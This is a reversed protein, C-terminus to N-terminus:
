VENIIESVRGPNPLGVVRAIEVQSLTTTNHLRLVEGRVKDKDYRVRRARRVPGRRTMGDIWSRFQAMGGPLVRAIAEAHKEMDRRVEPIQSM